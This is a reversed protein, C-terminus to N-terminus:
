DKPQITLLEEADEVANLWRGFVFTRLPESTEYARWAELNDFTLINAYHYKAPVVVPETKYSNYYSSLGGLTQKMESLFAEAEASGPEAKLRFSIKLTVPQTERWADPLTFFNTDREEAWAEIDIDQASSRDGNMALAMLLVVSCLGIQIYKM